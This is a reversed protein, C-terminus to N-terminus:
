SLFCREDLRPITERWEGRAEKEKERDKIRNNISLM